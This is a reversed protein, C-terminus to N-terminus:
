LNELRGVTTGHDTGAGYYAKLITGKVPAGKVPKEWEGRLTVGKPIILQGQIMYQGEPVFLVGGNKTGGSSSVRSGLADLLASFSRYQRYKGNSRCGHEVANYKAVFADSTTYKPQILKWSQASVFAVQILFIIKILSKIKLM